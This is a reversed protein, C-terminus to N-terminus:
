VALAFIKHVCFKVTKHVNQAGLRVLPWGRNKRRKVEEGNKGVVGGLAAHFTGEGGGGAREGARVFGLSGYHGAVMGNRKSPLYVGTIRPIGRQQCEDVLADFMALEFDRKLVRCSMLWTDIYLDESDQMKGIVIAIIGNDGFRDTLRLQLGFSSDDAMLASVVNTDLLDIPSM